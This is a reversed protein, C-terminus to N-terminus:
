KKKAVGIIAIIISMIALVFSLLPLISATKLLGILLFLTIQFFSILALPLPFIGPLISSKGLGSRM